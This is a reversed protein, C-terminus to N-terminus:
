LCFRVARESIHTCMVHTIRDSRGVEERGEGWAWGERGAGRGGGKGEGRRGGGCPTLTSATSGTNWALINSMNFCVPRNTLRVFSHTHTHAHTHAHTRAHTVSQINPLACLSTHCLLPMWEM